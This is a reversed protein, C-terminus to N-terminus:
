LDFRLGAAITRPPPGTQFDPDIGSDNAKWLMGLNNGYLYVQTRRFPLKLGSRELDYTVNIDRLRIHDGKEVLASSYIFLNDRNTNTAAPISPVNTFAEDGSKQWRIAYDGHGGQGTLVTNFRVSNKRFYYGLRYSINASLSLGKWTFTNRLAGSLIPRSSGHYVINDPTAAGIIGSYNKSTADNLYGQPDGTLPDLRAWPYSYVSYLSRGTVPYRAADASQVLSTATSAVKYDLVKDTAYSVILDTNWAMSGKVNASSILADIGNGSISATNGKFQTIGTSPAYPTFGILDLGRKHFYDISGKIRQGALSFDMGLNIMKIREWRLEPNPPNTILAFPLKNVPTVNVSLLATTYATVTKDINGNYGYTARIKFEPLWNLSYFSERSVDWSAGASWLPVGKQNVRVGFLNSQDMRGSASLTYRGKYTYASNMYYSIFRDNLESQFDENPISTSAGPNSYIPVQTIYDVVNSSGYEDDYGYLRHGSNQANYTRMEWGAIANIAHKQKWNHDYGLQARLNHSTIGGNQLDLIDGLPINRKLTGNSNLNTMNNILDRTYYSEQAQLDRGNESTSGFQYLVDATLGELLKYKLGGNIRYDSTRGTNNGLALERLPNYEWNLLGQQEAAGIFLPRYDHTLTVPNGQGDTFRAYPHLARNGSLRITGPNNQETSRNTYYISTNIELKQKLLTYSNAANLTIRRNGNGLSSSLNRDYGASLLYRQNESGGNMNVSYQQNVSSRYLYKEMDDRVDLLKLAEIRADALAPSILGDRKAILLEVVPSLPNNKNTSTEMSRYYNRSFLVKEMEIFDASSMQPEYYLDPKDGATINSNFSVQPKRNYKGKKTTIVIVGNGARSGWISAAAADKLVTISEVDNPNILNIDGNYPFNDLVILPQANAFLTSQGRISLSNAGKRNFVLGPVADELRSIIDGSVSRNLLTNDVHAFSGTAREKPVSQYGTSVVVEDLANEDESLAIVLLGTVPQKVAQEKFKFGMFSVELIFERQSVALIFNGLSDSSTGSSTGQVKINAGPLPLQDKESVVKGRISQALSPAHLSILLLTYYIFKKM